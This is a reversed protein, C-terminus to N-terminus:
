RKLHETQVDARGSPELNSNDGRLYGMALYGAIALCVWFLLMALRSRTRAEGMRSVEAPEARPVSGTSGGRPPLGNVLRTATAALSAAECAKRPLRAIAEALSQAALERPLAALRAAEHWPDSGIRTLVTLVTLPVESEENDGVLSFLFPNYESHGLAFEPRLAM